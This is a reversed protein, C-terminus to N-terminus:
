FIMQTSCKKVFFALRRARYVVPGVCKEFPPIHALLHLHQPGQWSLIERGHMQVFVKIDYHFGRKGNLVNFM